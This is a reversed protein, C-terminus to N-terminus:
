HFKRPITEKWDRQRLLKGHEFIERTFKVYFNSEDSQIDITTRVDVIRGEIEILKGREGRYKSKAPTKDNTEYYDRIYNHFRKGQIEFSSSGKWDVSVTSSMDRSMEIHEEPWFYAEFYPSDSSNHNPEM